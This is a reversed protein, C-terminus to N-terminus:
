YMQFPVSKENTNTHVFNDLMDGAETDSQELSHYYKCLQQMHMNYMTTYLLQNSRPWAYM